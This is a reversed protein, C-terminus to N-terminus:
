DRLWRVGDKTDLLKIGQVALQDRIADATAFDRNARAEQRKAILAEIDVELVEEEFIIGFVALMKEFASKVPETYSGSNIWKAMDFVVTIGNATNFDDDMADQFAIVFQKLEQEDATETLPQQLTNKLYKLNIEADHITKETFNIPKRYQQTALFFRLVQGDVTQLMDHVTVFNGLSKSMKENDVTVFGNHMWYNAFTKGTKAESQAIENTHHPFELDAGGGHIDITDGLIETAMVSCEIHWGPRGFGWPSDWSVEGAKASKWLAFDLPNEKLATEADTRGSAGVELESLTKNALKAYHESKEVRFYVDGDAEYAFDKEILSEVFSIIEAIYDMVRPNQTAPKVGLAKTDEIFAAIFRDSLEKPSVGAQTAAKIIKDDVDTFNSIYNVQYGTYEFYRRITDFAVASRANGIHIYNYVTPGCVYINVTNETLPVFKRLSRTMTDYIKIM